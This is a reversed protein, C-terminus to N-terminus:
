WTDCGIWGTSWNGIVGCTSLMVTRSYLFYPALFRATLANIFDFIHIKKHGTRVSLYVKKITVPFVSKILKIRLPSVNIAADIATVTKTDFKPIIWVLLTNKKAIMSKFSSNAM